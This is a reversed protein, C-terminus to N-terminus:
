AAERGCLDGFADEFTLNMRVKRPILRIEKAILPREAHIEEMEKLSVAFANEVPIGRM